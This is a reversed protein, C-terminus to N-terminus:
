VSPLNLEALQAVDHCDSSSLLNGIDSIDRVGRGVTSCDDSERLICVDEEDLRGKRPCIGCQRLLARMQRGDCGAFNRSFGARAADLRKVKGRAVCPLLLVHQSLYHRRESPKVRSVFTCWTM